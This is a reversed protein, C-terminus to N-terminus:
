TAILDGHEFQAKNGRCVNSMPRMELARSESQLVLMASLEPSWVGASLGVLWQTPEEDGSGFRSTLFYKALMAVTPECGQMFVDAPNVSSRAYNTLVYSITFYINYAKAFHIWSVFLKV